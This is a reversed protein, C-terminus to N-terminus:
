AVWKYVKPLKSYKNTEIKYEEKTLINEDISIDKNKSKYSNMLIKM